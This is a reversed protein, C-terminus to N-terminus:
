RVCRVALSSGAESYSSEGDNFNVVWTLGPSNGDPTSVFCWGAHPSSTWFFDAPTNPFAVPDIAPTRGNPTSTQSSAGRGFDVISELEAKTPLRWGSGSLSLGACYTKADVLTRHVATRQWLLGSRSDKVTGNGNAVFNSPSNSPPWDQFQGRCTFDSSSGQRPYV